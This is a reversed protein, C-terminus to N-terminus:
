QGREPSKGGTDYSDWDVTTDSDSEDDENEQEGATAEAFAVEDMLLEPLRLVLQLASIEGKSFEQQYVEDSTKLPSLVLAEIRAKVQDQMTAVLISWGTSELLAKLGRKRDLANLDHTM